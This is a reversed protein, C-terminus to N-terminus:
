LVGRRAVSACGMSGALLLAAFPQVGWTEIWWGGPFANALIPLACLGVAVGIRGNPRACWWGALPVALLTYTCGEIGPGFAMMWCTGLTLAWTPRQDPSIHRCWLAAGGAMLMQLTAYAGAPVAIGLLTLLLHADRSVRHWEVAHRENRQM